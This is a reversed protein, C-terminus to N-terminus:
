SNRAHKWEGENFRRVSGDYASWALLLAGIVILLIGALVFPRLHIGTFPLTNPADPTVSSVLVTPTDSNPPTGGGPQALTTTTTAHSCSQTGANVARVLDGLYQNTTTFHPIYNWLFLDVEYYCNPVPIDLTHIMGDDGFTEESHAFAVEQSVTAPDYKPGPSAYSALGIDFHCGNTVRFSVNADNDKVTIPTNIQIDARSCPATTTTTAAHATAATVLLYGVIIGVAVLAMAKTKTKM